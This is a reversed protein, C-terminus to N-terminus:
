ARVKRITVLIGGLLVLASIGYSAISKVGTNPSEIASVKVSTSTEVGNSAKVTITADGKGVATLRGNEDIKVVDENSSTYTFTVEDTTDGPNLGIELDVIDGVQFKEGILM